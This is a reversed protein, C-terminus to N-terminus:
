VNNRIIHYTNERYECLSLFSGSSYSLFVKDNDNFEIKISEIKGLSKGNLLENYEEQTIEFTPITPFIMSYPISSISELSRSEWLSLVWYSTIIKTRRLSEIYWWRVWFFEWLIPAFSRVYGWSSLIMRIEISFTSMSIIEVDDIHIKREKLSFIEGNRALTYARTGDIHLASYQPPVQSTQSLLFIKIEESSRERYNDTPIDEIPTWQDLSNSKGDLRVTFIYEKKSHELLPILKTSGKTAILLCGSALPDLTGIHGMKRVNLIRRLKRIVDFSSIGIPKDILYFM